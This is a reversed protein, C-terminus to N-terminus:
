GEQPASPFAYGLIVKVVLRDSGTTFGYGAGLEVDVTSVKFDTVAFLNGVASHGIKGCDAYYKLGIFRDNGLNRALRVTSVPCLVFSM